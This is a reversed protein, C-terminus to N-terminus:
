RLSAMEPATNKETDHKKRLRRAVFSILKLRYSLQQKLSLRTKSTVSTTNPHRRFYIGKFPIFEVKYKLGCITGIWIDHFVPLNRPIPLVENLIRRRFAMACGLYGNKMWNHFVGKQSRNTKFFSEHLVNLNEDTVVADHVVCDSNRLAEMCHRVKGEIWVDDQDSLFIVDGQANYLANEFNGNVGKATSHFLKIRKDRCSDIIDLTNDTSGDDSIVLEDEPGLQELISDIQHRIFCEGNHTAICVSIM